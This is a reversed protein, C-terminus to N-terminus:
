AAPPQPPAGGPPPMPPPPPAAPFPPPPEMQRAKAWQAQLWNIQDANGTGQYVAMYQPGMAQMMQDINALDRSKNPRRLSEAEIRYDFERCVTELDAPDPKYVYQAWLMSLPATFPQQENWQEQFVPAVDAPGIMTRTAISEKRAVQSQWESTRKAMQDIFQMTMSEKIQSEAASRDQTDSQGYMMPTLGTRLDFLHSALNFLTIVSQPPPPFEKFQVLDNINKTLSRKFKLITVDNGNLLKDVFEPENEEAYALIPRSSWKTHGALFSLCWNMLKLEGLASKFHSASYVCGLRPKFEVLSCPWPSFHDGHLPIPWSVAARLADMNEQQMLDVEVLQPPINIPWHHGEAVVLYVNEGFQEMADWIPDDLNAGQLRGGIGMRSYIKYYVLTDCASSRARMSAADDDDKTAGAHKASEMNAKISGRPWGYMDEVMWVPHQCKRVVFKGHNQMQADPDAIYNDYVSDWTSGVVKTTSGKPQHIETWLVGMGGVMCEILARLSHGQLDLENPTYNLVNGLLSSVAMSRFSTANVTQMAMQAMMPDGFAQFLEPPVDNRRRSVERTPNDLYLRPIIRDVGEAIKNLTMRFTLKPGGEGPDVKLGVGGEAYKGGYMFDHSGDFFKHCEAAVDRYERQKYEKGREIM